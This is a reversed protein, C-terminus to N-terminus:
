IMRLSKMVTGSTIYIIDGLYIKKDGDEAIKVRQFDSHVALYNINVSGGMPTYIKEEGVTELLDVRGVEINYFGIIFDSEDSLLIYTIGQNEDM